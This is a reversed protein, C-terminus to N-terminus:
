NSVSNYVKQKELWIRTEIEKIQGKLNENEVRCAKEENEIVKIQDM